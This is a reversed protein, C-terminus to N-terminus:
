VEIGLNLLAQTGPGSGINIPRLELLGAPLTSGALVDADNTTDPQGNPAYPEDRYVQATYGDDFYLQGTYVASGDRQVRVHIHPTRGPYWGPYLTSFSVIGDDRVPQTGRLFTSGEADDKGTGGDAFASYDGTPDSHWVEVAVGTLPVCAGDVVRLGLLLPHGVIGETIDRREFQQDLGFPGAASTPVLGCTPLAEFDAPVLESTSASAAPM